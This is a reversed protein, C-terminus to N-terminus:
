ILKKIKLRLGRPNITTAKVNISMLTWEVVKSKIINERLNINQKRIEDAPTCKM